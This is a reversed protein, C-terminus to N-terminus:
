RRSSSTRCNRSTLAASTRASPSGAPDRAAGADDGRILAHVLNLGAAMATAGVRGSALREVRFLEVRQHGRGREVWVVQQNSLETVGLHERKAAIIQVM